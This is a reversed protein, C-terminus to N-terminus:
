MQSSPGAPQQWKSTSGLPVRAIEISHWCNSKVKKESAQGVLWNSKYSNLMCKWQDAHKILVKKYPEAPHDVITLIKSTLCVSDCIVKLFKDMRLTITKFLLFERELCKMYFIIQKHSNWSALWPHLDQPPLPTQPSIYGGSKPRSNTM